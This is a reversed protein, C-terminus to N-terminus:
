PNKKNKLGEIKKRQKALLDDLRNSEEFLDESESEKEPIGTEKRLIKAFDMQPNAQSSKTNGWFKLDNKRFLDTLDSLMGVPLIDKKQSQYIRIKDATRADEVDLILNVGHDSIGLVMLKGALDVVQIYKGQMLPVSAIVDILESGSAIGGSKNKLYRLVLYLLAIMIGMLVIFRILTEIFSPPEERNSQIQSDIEREVANRSNEIGGAKELDTKNNDLPETKNKEPKEEAKKAPNGQISQVWSQGIEDVNRPTQAKLDLPFTLLFFLFIVAAPLFRETFYNRSVLFRHALKNHRM